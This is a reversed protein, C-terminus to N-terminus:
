PQASGGGGPRDPPSKLLLEMVSPPFASPKERKPMGEVFPMLQLRAIEYVERLRAIPAAHEDVRLDVKAYSESGFVVIGAAQKGRKDGGAAQAAELCAMLRADLSEAHSAEFTEALADIVEPGTLMNGQASFDSGHRSGHWDTCAGGTWVASGGSADVVGVQRLDAEADSALASALAADAPSGAALADLIATALYPNVWSQTTVAGVGPRVYPCIAGVAPVASAVAVGLEGTRPCRAVISFTNAEIGTM